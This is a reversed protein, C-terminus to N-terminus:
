AWSLGSWFSSRRGLRSLVESPPPPPPPTSVPMLASRSYSGFQEEWSHANPDWPEEDEEGEGDKGRAEGEGAEVARLDEPRVSPGVPIPAVPLTQSASQTTDGPRSFGLGRREPTRLAPATASPVAATIEHDKLQQGEAQTGRLGATQESAPPQTSQSASSRSTDTAAESVEAVRHKLERLRALRSSLRSSRSGGAAGATTRSAGGDGAESVQRQATFAALQPM